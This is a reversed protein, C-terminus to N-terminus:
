QADTAATQTPTSNTSTWHQGGDSSVIITGAMGVAMDYQPSFAMGTISNSTDSAVATARGQQYEAITGDAGGLFLNSASAPHVSVYASHTDGQITGAKWTKGGDTSLADIGNLGTVVADNADLFAITFYPDSNLTRQAGTQVKWTKGGDITHLITSFEGVVWGNMPDTFAADFFVFDEFKSATWTEGGDDTCLVTGHEGVACAKNSDIVAIKLLAAKQKSQQLTWTKGRDDTRYIAGGDGVAWGRSGDSTFGVSYLDYLEQDKSLNQRTWTKGRDDSYMILGQDGVVVARGDPLIAVGFYNEWTRVAPDPANATADARANRAAMPSVLFLFLAFARFTGRVWFRRLM